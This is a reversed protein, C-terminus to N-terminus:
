QLCAREICTHANLIDTKRFAMVRMRVCIRMV